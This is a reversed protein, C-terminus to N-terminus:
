FIREKKLCNRIPNELGQKDEELFLFYPPLIM